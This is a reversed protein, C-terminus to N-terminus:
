RESMVPLARRLCRFVGDLNVDMTRRWSEFSTDELREVVYIGANAVLLDVGGFEEEVQAFAREVAEDSTVDMDIGRVGEIEPAVRSGAIVTAGQDRLTEAVCRGIGRAAGTVLAVRGEFGDLKMSM